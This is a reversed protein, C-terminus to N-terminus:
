SEGEVEDEITGDRSKEREGDRKLRGEGMIKENIM